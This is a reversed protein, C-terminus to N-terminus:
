EASAIWWVEADALEHTSLKEAIMIGVPWGDPPPPPSTQFMEVSSVKARAVVQDNKRFELADGKNISLKPMAAKPIWGAM